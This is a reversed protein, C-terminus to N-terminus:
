LSCCRTQHSENPNSFITEPRAAFYRRAGVLLRRCRQCAGFEAMHGSPVPCVWGGGADHSALRLEVLDIYRRSHWSVHLPIVFVLIVAGFCVSGRVMWGWSTWCFWFGCIVYYLNCIKFIYHWSQRLPPSWIKAYIISCIRVIRTSSSIIITIITTISTIIVFSFPLLFLLFSAVIFM